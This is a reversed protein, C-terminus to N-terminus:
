DQRREGRPGSKGAPRSARLRASLRALDAPTDVDEMWLGAPLRVVVADRSQAFRRAGEDGGLALLRPLFSEAFVAPPQPGRGGDAFVAAAGARFADVLRAVVDATLFPQDVLCVLVGPTRGAALVGARLSESQNRSAIEVVAAGHRRAVERAVAAEPRLVVLPPALDPLRLRELLHELLTRGGLVLEAKAVGGLRRGLGAALV